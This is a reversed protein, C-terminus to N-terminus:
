GPDAQRLTAPTGRRVTRRAIWWAIALVVLLVVAVVGAIAPWRLGYDVAPDFTEVTGIDLSPLVLVLSVVAALAGGVAAMGLLAVYEVVIARGLDRRPVGVVRLAAVEYARWRLQVVALALVGLFALLLTLVGVLLFVKWGLTFADSRLDDLVGAETRVTSLDVGAERLEGLVSDPTDAAVLLETASVNSSLDGYERLAAGLDSLGGNDGVVPLAGTTGALQMPTRTGLLSAGNVDGAGVPELPTSETAVMPPAAPLDTTTMRLVTADGGPVDLTLGGGSSTLSFPATGSTPFPRAPRWADAVGVRWEGAEAGDAAITSITLSGHADTVSSSSGSVFLQQVECGAECDSVFGEVTADGELPVEGLPSTRQEGTGAPVYRLWLELPLNLSGELAVDTLEVAVHTGSFTIPDRDEAVSLWSQVETPDSGWSEDWATVRAFRDADVLAVRAGDTTRPTPPVLAALYRGEPDVRHTIAYLQAPQTDTLYAASAGVEAAAKSVRWDDAVRWASVAFTAVSTALLLPLVLLVLDQRRVLRRSALFPALGGRDATRSQWRRALSQVAVMALVAGGLAVALPALLEVFSSSQTADSTVVQVVAAVALMVLAGQALMSWRSTARRRTASGLSISVPERVVGLVAVLAAVLASASVVAAAAVAQPTIVFPTEGLWARAVLRSAALALGIGVPVAVLLVAIPEAVAFRVVQATSFGRLKALAVEQRRVDAASSVLVFLLLLALVVLPVIAALTIRSLLHQEARVDDFVGELSSVDDAPVVPPGQAAVEAQWQVLSAQAADMTDIDVRASDIPRDAGGITGSAFTIGAQDVLLAPAALPPTGPIPPRLLGDGGTRGPDFWTPDANDDITYTGVITFTVPFTVVDTDRGAYGTYLITVEGGIEQGITRLMTPDVIAEDPGSPCRGEVHAHECMGERWYANMPHSIGGIEYSGESLLFTTAPQWFSDAADSSVLRTATDLMAQRDADTLPMKAGGDGDGSDTTVDPAVSVTLGTESNLRQLTRQDLLHEASSRAYLPTAVAVLVALAGLVFTGVNLWRRSRLGALFTSM